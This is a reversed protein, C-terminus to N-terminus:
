PHVTCQPALDLFCTRYPVRVPRAGAVPTARRSQPPRQPCAGSATAGPPWGWFCAVYRAHVLVVGAVSSARRSRPPRHPCAGLAAAGPAWGRSARRDCTHRAQKSAAETPLRGFATAGPPWGWFCAVYRAHVLVVGAVSAARRSRPPRQPCAGSAAAGPAWGWATRRHCTHRAQKTAAETPLRGFRNRRTALGLAGGDGGGSLMAAPTARPLRLLAEAGAPGELASVRM